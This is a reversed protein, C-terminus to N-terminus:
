ENFQAATVGAPPRKHSAAITLQGHKHQGIRALHHDTVICTGM